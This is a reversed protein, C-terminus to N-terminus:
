QSQAKQMLIQQTRLILGSVKLFVSTKDNIFAPENLSGIVFLYDKGNITHLASQHAYSSQLIPSVVISIMVFIGFLMFYKKGM